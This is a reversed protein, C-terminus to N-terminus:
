LFEAYVSKADRLDYHSFTFPYLKKTEGNELRAFYEQCFGVVPNNEFHRKLENYKAESSDSKLIYDETKKTELVPYNNWIYSHIENLLEVIKLEESLPQTYFGEEYDENWNGNVLKENRLLQKEIKKKLSNLHNEILHKIERRDIDNIGTLEISIFFTAQFGGFQKEIVNLMRKVKQVEKHKFCRKHYIIKSM